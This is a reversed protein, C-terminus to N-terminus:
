PRQPLWVPRDRGRLNYDIYESAADAVGLPIAEAPVRWAGDITDVVAMSSRGSQMAEVIAGAQVCARFLARREEDGM